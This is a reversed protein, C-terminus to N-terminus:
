PVHDNEGYGAAALAERLRDAVDRTTAGAGHKKVFNWTPMNYFDLAFLIAEAMEELAALRAEIKPMDRWAEIAQPILSNWELAADSVRQYHELAGDALDDRSARKEDM